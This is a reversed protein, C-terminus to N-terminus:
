TEAKAAPVRRGHRVRGLPIPPPRGMRDPLGTPDPALVSQRIHRPPFSGTTSPPRYGGKKKTHPFFFFFLQTLIHPRPPTPSLVRVENDRASEEDLINSDAIFPRIPLHTRIPTPMRHLDRENYTFMPCSNLTLLAKIQFLTLWPKGRWIVFLLSRVSEYEGQEIYVETLKAWTVFESPACNVAERALQLAWDLKGKSRLFDCQVHLLPYSQPNEQLGLHIIQVAKVEEDVDFFSDIDFSRTVFHLSFESMGLYSTALLAAVEPQHPLLREFLNVTKDFRFSDGFYKLLGATLHNSM